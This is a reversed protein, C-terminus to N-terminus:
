LAEDKSFYSEQSEGNVCEAKDEKQEKEAPKAKAAQEICVCLVNSRIPFSCLCRAHNKKQRYVCSASYVKPKKELDAETKAGLLHLVQASFLAHKLM